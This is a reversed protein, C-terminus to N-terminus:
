PVALRLRALGGNSATNDFTAPIATNGSSSASFGQSPTVFAPAGPTVNGAVVVWIVGRTMVSVTDGQPYADTQAATPRVNHDLETVGRFVSGTAAIGQDTAGQFAPKGFGIGGATEITRSITNRLEMNAPMGEVGPALTGAYTTQYAPM